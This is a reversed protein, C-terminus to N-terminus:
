VGDYFAEAPEAWLRSAPTARNRVYQAVISFGLSYGTHRPIGRESSGFFWADHDYSSTKLESKARGWMAELVNDELARAYFPVAGGRLETEFHCALGETVLAEGLTCGYGPGGHRMCHHLEHGLAAVFETDFDTFLNPNAPDITLYVVDAAPSVSVMGTEPIVFPDARVVVDINSAPLLATVAEVGRAFAREVRERVPDLKSRANLLHLRISM